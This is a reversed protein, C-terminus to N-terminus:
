MDLSSPIRPSSLLQYFLEWREENTKAQEIYDQVIKRGWNYNIVYAGYTDVFSLSQEARARTTMAYKQSLTIAEERDIDGNIYMRAIENRSFGLKSALRQYQEYEEATKPDLGALPFLVEKEFKFKEDGPFAMQIGYNASGEAILSQPSFLPYVSYEVWGRQKVLHHELLANYTHHGPYGEHCGLDVARSIATPFDTNVQILSFADGKYWNYGGWPKNKVYEITFSEHPLLEIFVKTRDRCEALARDFVVGLKDAPVEFRKKFAAVREYLPGDGPLLKEIDALASDYGSLDNRPPQTDYLLQSQEDFSYKPKGTKKSSSKSALADTHTILATLQKHLYHVRLKDMKDNVSGVKPLAKQLKKAKAIITKKDWQNAKVTKRWFAPGYYADVYGKDHEGVALVLFVYQKAMEDVSQHAFVKANFSFGISVTAVIALCLKSILKM